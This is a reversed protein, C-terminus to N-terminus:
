VNRERVNQVVPVTTFSRCQDSRNLSRSSSAVEASPTNQKVVSPKQDILKTSSASTTENSQIRNSSIKNSSNENSPSSTSIEIKPTEAKRSQECKIKNYHTRLLKNQDILRSSSDVAAGNTTAADSPKPKEIKKLPKLNATQNILPKKKCM